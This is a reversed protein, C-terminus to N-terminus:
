RVWIKMRSGKDWGLLSLFRVPKRLHLIPEGTKHGRRLVIDWGVLQAAVDAYYAAPGLDKRDSGEYFQLLCILTLQTTCM